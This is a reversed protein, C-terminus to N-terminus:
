PNRPRRGGRRAAVLAGPIALRRTRSRRLRLTVAAAGVGALALPWGGPPPCPDFVPWSMAPRHKAFTELIEAYTPGPRYSRTPFVLGDWDLPTPELSLVRLGVSTAAMASPAACALALAGLLAKLM